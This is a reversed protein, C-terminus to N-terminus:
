STAAIALYAPDLEPIRVIGLHELIQDREELRDPPETTGEAEDLRQLATLTLALEFDAGQDRASEEATNLEARAAGLDGSLTLAEGRLRHYRTWLDGLESTPDPTEALEDLLALADDAAGRLILSDVRALDTLFVDEALGLEGFGSRASTLLVDAEAFDHRRSSRVGLLRESFAVGWRDGSSSFIRYADRLRPEPSDIHGQDSLIEAINTSAVAANVPNGMRNQSEEAREYYGCADDWEGSWYAYAGLNNAANGIGSLDEIEEYIKLAERSWTPEGSLGLSLEAADRILYARALAKRDGAAMAEEIGREAWALADKLKGQEVRIVAYWVTLQARTEAVGDGDLGELAKHGRTIWGLAQSLQGQRETTFARKLALRGQATPADDVLRGARHYADIAETYLGALDRVDGLAELVEAREGGSVQDAHRAASLAREYLSAAEINAFISKAYNGAEVSYEWAEPWRAANFYHISLLDAAGEIRQISEAVLGHLRRRERYPLGSYAAQHVLTNSFRVWESDVDLFDGLRELAIAPALGEPLVVAAYEPRFGSGLVSLQRLTNRDEPQLRDIRASVLAEISEPLEGSEDESVAAILEHLFMPNGQAREVIQKTVHPPLPADDTCRHVLATAEDHTMPGVSITPLDVDREAAARDVNRGCIFVIWPRDEAAVTLSTVLDASADDMYHADDLWLIAPETLVADLLEIVTAELRKKRFEQALARVEPSEEIDLGLADGLLSLYPMLRPSAGEVIRQLQTIAVEPNFRDIHFIEDVLLRVAFYPTTSRYRRCVVGFLDIPGLRSAFEEVLRSKGVGPDGAVLIGSGSGAEAKEWMTMLTELQEDRGTFPTDRGTADVRTGRPQGLSFATIPVKKGKVYFPELDETEFLTRSGQLVPETVLIQNPGAKSMLRAALNVQDGMVTYGKRFKTGIEAAFLPAYTIGVHLPLARPRDVIERVALLMNEEDEGTVIPAGATMLIKIGDPYVDTNLLAIQRPGIAAQVDDILEEFLETTAAPDRELFDDVGTFRIFASAAPRHEAVLAGQEISERLVVPIFPTLDHETQYLTTTPTQRPLLRGNLLRGGGEHEPGLNRAPLARAIRPGAMIQGRNAAGELRALETTTRGAMILERFEHGVLFFHYEGSHVGQSMGLNVKGAPTDFSGTERMTRRMELTASAARLEHDDGQFLILLADGGFKILSGGFGYANELLRTFTSGIVETVEEAGERGIRGLRETMNTFGSIDAFITSGEIVRHKEDPADDVWHRAIRPVYATYDRATGADSM